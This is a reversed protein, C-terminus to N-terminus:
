TQEPNYREVLSEAPGGHIKKGGIAYIYNTTAGAGIRCRPTIMNAMAKWEGEAPDFCQIDVSRGKHYMCGGVIYLKDKLSLVIAKKDCANPKLPSKNIKDWIRDVHSMNNTGLKLKALSTANAEWCSEQGVTYLEQGVAAVGLQAYSSLPNPLKYFQENQLDYCFSKYQHGRTVGILVVHITASPRERSTSQKESTASRRQRRKQLKLFNECFSVGEFIPDKEFHNVLFELSLSRLCHLLTSLEKARNTPDHKAWNVVAEFVEEEKEVRVSDSSILEKLEYPGLELFEKQKNAAQFNKTMFSAAKRSMEDLAYREALRKTSFCNSISLNNSMVEACANKVHNLLLFSSAELLGELNDKNVIIQRTYFFDLVTCVASSSLSRLNVHKENSHRMGSTFLTYFFQSNAALVCRHAPFSQGDVELVVDCFGSEGEKRLINLFSLVCSSNGVYKRSSVLPFVRVESLKEKDLRAFAEDVDKCASM